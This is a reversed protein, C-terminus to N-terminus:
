DKIKAPHSCNETERNETATVFFALSEINGCVSKKEETSDQGTTISPLVM